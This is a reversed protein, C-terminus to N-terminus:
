HSILALHTRVPRSCDVFFGMWQYNHCHALSAASGVFVCALVVRAVGVCGPNAWGQMVWYSVKLWRSAAPPCLDRLVAM